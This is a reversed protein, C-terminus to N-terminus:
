KENCLKEGISRLERTAQEINEAGYIASVIAFGDAGLGKLQPLNEAGIGGIFCVPISTRECIEQAIEHSLPKADTKTGTAFVAGVGLYDAGSEQAKLAQEVTAATVGIIKDPGLLARVNKTEMDSQGIHVGDAGCALAVPINDNILLPIEYKECVKKLALGKKVFEEFSCNKERLQILTAGGKLSEEVAQELTRNKLFRSDTVGYILLDKSSFKM